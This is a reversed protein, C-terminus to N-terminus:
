CIYCPSTSLSHFGGGIGLKLVLFCVLGAYFLKGLAMFGLALFVYVCIIWPTRTEILLQRRILVPIGMNFILRDRRIKLM